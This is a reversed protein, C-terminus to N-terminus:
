IHLRQTSRHKRTRGSGGGTCEDDEINVLADLGAEEPRVTVVMVRDRWLLLRLAEAMDTDPIDFHIRAGGDGSLGISNRGPVLTARFTTSDDTM